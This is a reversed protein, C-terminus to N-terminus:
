AQLRYGEGRLTVIRSPGGAEDLWRRLQSIAVEVSNSRLDAREPYLKAEITARSVVRGRHLALLELLLRERRRMPLVTEGRRVQGTARDLALDGVVLVDDVLPARRRALAHARAALERLDFPRALYDDAGAEFGRLRDEVEGRVNMLLVPTAHGQARLRRLLEVGDFGALSVDTVVVDPALQTAAWLGTPGDPAEEVVFGLRTLGQALAAHRGVSDEVLLLKV